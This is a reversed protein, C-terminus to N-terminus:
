LVTAVGSTGPVPIIGPLALAVKRPSVSASTEKTSTENCRNQVYVRPKSNEKVGGPSRSICLSSDRNGGKLLVSDDAGRRVEPTIIRWANLPRPSLCLSNSFLVGERLRFRNNVHVTDTCPGTCNITCYEDKSAYPDTKISGCCDNVIYLPARAKDKTRRFTTKLNQM